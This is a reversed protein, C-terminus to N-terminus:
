SSSADVYGNENFAGTRASMAEALASTVADSGDQGSEGSSFARESEKKSDALESAQRSLSQHLPICNICINDLLTSYHSVRLCSVYDSHCEGDPCPM